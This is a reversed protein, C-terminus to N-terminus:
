AYKRYANELKEDYKNRYYLPGNYRRAFETWNKNRLVEILRNNDLFKGFIELQKAESLKMDAVFQVIDSYGASAYNEGLVQFLGYSASAYAAEAVDAAPHISIAKEMREWERENGYYHTKVWSPYLVNEFGAQMQEPKYNRLKLQRWFVHGEFLIVPRGSSYFGKGNSEVEIVAKVIPVELHYSQCFSEIDRPSLSRNSKPILQNQNKNQAQNYKSYLVPWTETFVIGDVTLSNKRQFDVVAAETSRSFYNNNSVQYGLAKLLKHLTKVAVVQMGYKLLPMGVPNFPAYNLLATWTRVYVIGDVVMGNREQFDRVEAETEEDFYETVRLNGGAEKLLWRLYKVSEGVSNLKLVQM